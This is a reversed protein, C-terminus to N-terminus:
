LGSAGGASTDDGGNGTYRIVEGTGTNSFSFWYVSTGFGSLGLSLRGRSDLDLVIYTPSACVISFSAPNDLETFIQDVRNAFQVIDTEFDVQGLSVGSWDITSSGTIQAM